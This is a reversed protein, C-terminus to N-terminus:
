VRRQWSWALLPSITRPIECAAFRSNFEMPWCSIAKMCICLWATFGFWVGQNSVTNGTQTGTGHLTSGEASSCAAHHLGM